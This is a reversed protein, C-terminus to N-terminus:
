SDALRVDVGEKGPRFWLESACSPCTVATYEGIAGARTRIVTTCAPCRVMVPLHGLPPLDSVYPSRM